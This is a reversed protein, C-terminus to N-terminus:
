NIEHPSLTGNLLTGFGQTGTWPMDRYWQMHMQINYTWIYRTYKDQGYKEECDSHLFSKGQTPYFIAYKKKWWIHILKM